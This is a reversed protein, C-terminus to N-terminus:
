KYVTTVIYKATPVIQAWDETAQPVGTHQAAAAAVANSPPNAQSSPPPPHRQQPPPLPHNQQHSASPSSPHFTYPNDPAGLYPLPTTYPHSSPAASSSAASSSSSSSSSPPHAGFSTNFVAPAASAHQRPASQPRSALTSSSYATTASSTDAAVSSPPHAVHGPALQQAHSSHLPTQPSYFAPATTAPTPALSHAGGGSGLAARTMNPSVPGLGSNHESIQVYGTQPGVHTIDGTRGVKLLLRLDQGHKDPRYLEIRIMAPGLIAQDCALAVVSQEESDYAILAVKRARDIAVEIPDGPFSFFKYLADSTVKSSVNSALVISLRKGKQMKKFRKTRAKMIGLQGCVDDYEKPTLKRVLLKTDKYSTGNLAECATLANPNEFEVM